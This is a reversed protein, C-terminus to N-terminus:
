CDKMHPTVRIASVKRRVHDLARFEPVREIVYTEIIDGETEDLRKTTPTDVSNGALHLSATGVDKMSKAEDM